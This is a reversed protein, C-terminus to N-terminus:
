RAVGRIGDRCERCLAVHGGDREIVALRVWDGDGGHRAGHQAGCDQCRWAQRQKVIRNRRREEPGWALAAISDAISM